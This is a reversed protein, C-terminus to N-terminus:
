YRDTSEVLFSFLSFYFSVASVCYFSVLVPYVIRAVFHRWEDNKYAIFLFNM